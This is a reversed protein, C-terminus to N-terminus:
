QNSSGLVGIAHKAQRITEADDRHTELVIRCIEVFGAKKIKRRIDDGALALNAIAWCGFQQIGSDYQHQLMANNIASIANANALDRSAEDSGAITLLAWCAQRQFKCNDIYKAMLTVLISAGNAELYRQRNDISHHTLNTIATCCHLLITLNDMYLEMCDVILQVMGLEGFRRRAHDNGYVLSGLLRLCQGQVMESSPYHKVADVISEDLRCVICEQKNSDNHIVEDRIERACRWVIIDDSTCNSKFLELLGRVGNAKMKTVISKANSDRARLADAKKTLEKEENQQTQIAIVKQTKSANHLMAGISVPKKVPNVDENHSTSSNENSVVVADDNMADFAEGNAIYPSFM